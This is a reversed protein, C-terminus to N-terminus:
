PQQKVDRRQTRGEGQEGRHSTVRTIAGQNKKRRGEHSCPDSVIPEKYVMKPERFSIVIMVFDHLPVVVNPLSPMSIWPNSAGNM